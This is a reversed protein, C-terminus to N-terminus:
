KTLLKMAAEIYTRSMPQSGIMTNDPHNVTRTMSPRIALL